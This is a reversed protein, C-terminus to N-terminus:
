EFTGLFITDPAPVSVDVFWVRGDGTATFVRNGDVALSGEATGNNSSTIGTNFASWNVGDSSRYIGLSYFSVQPPPPPNPDANGNTGTHLFMVGSQTTVIKNTQLGAVIFFPTMGLTPTVSHAGIDAYALSTTWAAFNFLKVGNWILNNQATFGLAGINGGYTVPRMPSNPNKQTPAGPMCAFADVPQWTQGMDESYVVGAGETGAYVWGRRDVNISYIAGDENNGTYSPYYCPAQSAVSATENIATFSQGGDTSRFVNAWKAGMWIDGNPARALAFAGLTPNQNINAAQWTSTANRYVFVIPDNLQASTMGHFIGVVPEGLATTTLAQINNTISVYPIAPLAAFTGSSALTNSARHIVGLPPAGGQVGYYITHDPGVALRPHLGPPLGSAWLQWAGSQALLASCCGGGLALAIAVARCVTHIASSSHM